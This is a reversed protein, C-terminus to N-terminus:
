SNSAPLVTSFPNSSNHSRVQCVIEYVAKSLQGSSNLLIRSLAVLEPLFIWAMGAKIELLDTSPIRDERNPYSDPPSRKAQLPILGHDPEPDAGMGFVIANEFVNLFGAISDM